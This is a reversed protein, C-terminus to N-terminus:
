QSLHDKKIERVPCNLLEAIQNKIAVRRNNWNRIEIARKGIENLDLDSEKGSKLEAELAWINSHIQYLENIM